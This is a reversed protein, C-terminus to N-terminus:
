KWFDYFNFWQYPKAKIAIELNKMFEAACEKPLKISADIPEFTRMKYTFLKERFCVTQLVPVKAAKALAYASIPASVEAGMFDVKEYRGGAYRDAHMAVIGGNRLVSYAEISDTAGSSNISSIGRKKVSDALKKLREDEMDVGSVFVKRGYKELQVGSIAWGGVHATVIVVGKGESLIKRITDECEDIITIKDDGIFYSTRDLLCIGFSFLLKYLEFSFRGIKKNLVRELFARAGICTSGRFIQFYAAVFVLLSYAPYIGLKLLKLFCLNGFYGGFSKGTWKLKTDSM